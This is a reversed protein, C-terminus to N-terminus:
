YVFQYKLHTEILFFIIDTFDPQVKTLSGASLFQEGNLLTTVQPMGRVNITSGEGASRRIQIGPIRQLSDAITADPLKGIDEATISDVVGDAFRKTNLSKETSARIGRVEIVELEEESQGDVALAHSSMVGALIAYSILSLKFSRKNNM